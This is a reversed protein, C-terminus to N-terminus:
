ILPDDTEAVTHHAAKMALQGFRTGTHTRAAAWEAGHTNAEHVCASRQESEFCEHRIEGWHQILYFNIVNQMNLRNFFKANNEHCVNEVWSDNIYHLVM